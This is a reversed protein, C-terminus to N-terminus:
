LGSSGILSHALAAVRHIARYAAAYDTVDETYVALVYPSEAFPEVIAVDNRTGDIEGTKNAVQTNPPLAAPIADRDTQGLMIDIMRRCHQPSVITSIGERAGRAILFLLQAMDAPTTRNDQHHVIATYDLFKRALHTHTMGAAKGIANIANVGFFGILANSATNDSVRIMPVLLDRVRFRAGDPANSMFDSGGILNRRYTTISMDLTGPYREEHAFATALILVKITSATPFSVRDNYRLIPPQDALTRCSVGLVGPLDSALADLRAAPSSARAARPLQPLAVITTGTALLFARRKM